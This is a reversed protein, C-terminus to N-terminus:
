WKKQWRKSWWKKVWEIYRRLPVSADIRSGDLNLQAGPAPVSECISDFRSLDASQINGVLVDTGPVFSFSKSYHHGKRRQYEMGRLISEVVHYLIGSGEDGTEIFIAVHNRRGPQGVYDVTYVKYSM